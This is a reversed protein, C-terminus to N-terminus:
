LIKIKLMENADKQFEYNTKVIQTEYGKDNLIKIIPDLHKSKKNNLDVIPFIRVENKSIDCMQLISKRHFELDFNDSYLFLFHSSLVLDFSNKKFSLKPLEEYVYRGEEKGKEFDKLFTNMASLRIQVLEDVDKIDEWIFDSKNLRLQESVILSTKEIRQQIEDKSFQYIPDVSIHNIGKLSLEQNFSSPGDGCGLISSKLNSSSLLFMKQYEELTRGWPVINELKL